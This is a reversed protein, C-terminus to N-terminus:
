VATERQVWDLYAPLGGSATFRLIEPLDYPHQSRIQEELRAYGALTTKILLPVETATTVNGEWRYVSTCEALINVCAAIRQDILLAALRVAAERDPLTTLVIVVDTHKGATM